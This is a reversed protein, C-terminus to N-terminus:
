TVKRRSRFWNLLRGQQHPILQLEHAQKIAFLLTACGIFTIEWVDARILILFLLSGAAGFMVTWSDNEIFLFGILFLIAFSFFMDWQPLALLTGAFIALAKGGRFGLFPSYAHGLIAALAIFYTIPQHLGFAIRAILIVPIGKAIEFLLTVIGWWNSGAKFVNMSGPNGDGYRRIDQHLAIKGVWVAFPCAGLFFASVALLVLLATDM